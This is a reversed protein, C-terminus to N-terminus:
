TVSGASTDSSAEPPEWTLASPVNALSLKCSPADPPLSRVISTVAPTNATSAEPPDSMRKLPVAREAVERRVEPVPVLTFDVTTTAGVRVLVLAEQSRYGSRAVRIGIRGTPVADLRFAGASDTLASLASGAVTVRAGAITGGGGDRVHGTVRGTPAVRRLPAAASSALALSLFLVLAPLRRFRSATPM